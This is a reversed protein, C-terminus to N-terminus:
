ASSPTAGRAFSAIWSPARAGSSRAISARPARGPPAHQDGALRLSHGTGRTDGISDFDIVGSPRLERRNGIPQCKM